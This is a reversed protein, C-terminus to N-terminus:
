APLGSVLDEVVQAVPVARALGSAVGAYLSMRHPDGAAAAAARLPRTANNIEPYAPPADHHLEMFRNALARARRGSFVRTVSTQQFLPHALAAKHIAHAGSEPCRLFATGAQVMVAGAALVRAVEDTGSIGGAVILPVRTRRVVNALLADRPRDMDARDDNVFHGRHAGAESGQLCLCDVGLAVAVMAEEPTTVTVCVLSGVGRLARVDGASPCGFTFSVLAVPDDLLVRMKAPYDDDDWVPAGLAVGLASAEVGLAEVYAALADPRGTPAGPVFLNVGFPRDTGERVAAMETDLAAASKYGGALFGLAGAEAGAVVLAVTSPGGAMPAVVVPWRSLGRLRAAAADPPTVGVTFWSVLM